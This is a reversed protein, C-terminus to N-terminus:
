KYWKRSSTENDMAGLTSCDPTCTQTAGGFDSHEFLQNNNCGAYARTSSIVDNWSGLSGASYTKWCKFWGFLGCSYSSCGYENEVVWTLSSGGYNSGTYDVSIITTTAKSDAFMEPTIDEPSAEYPLNVEGQTAAYIADSFTDFCEVKAAEQDKSAAVPEFPGEVNEPGTFELTFDVIPIVCHKGKEFVPPEGAGTLGSTLLLGVAVLVSSMINRNVRM